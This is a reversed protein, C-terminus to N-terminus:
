VIEDEPYPVNFYSSAPYATRPRQVMFDADARYYQPINQPRCPIGGPRCPKNPRNPRNNLIRNIILIKILDQLTRNKPRSHEARAVSSSNVAVTKPKNESMEMSKKIVMDDEVAYYIKLSMNEIVEKTIEQSVNESITKEVMPMLINYIDPYCKKIKSVEESEKIIEENEQSKAIETINQTYPVQMVPEAKYQIPPKQVQQYTPVYQMYQYNEYPVEPAFGNGLVNQMYDEYNQYFM